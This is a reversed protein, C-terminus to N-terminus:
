KKFLTFLSRFFGKYTKEGGVGPMTSLNQPHNVTRGFKIGLGMYFSGANYGTGVAGDSQSIGRALSISKGINDSGLFFEFNPTKYMGQVGIMIFNNLNYVPTLSASFKDINFTNVFAFDGGQYFLNKSIIISPKYFGFTRSILFDARANTPTFFAEQKDANYAIDTIENEIQKNSKSSLNYISQITNLKATHSSKSWRIFGLDKINGMIFYGSKSAYSTGITLSLGPNKFTPILTKRELEDAKIFSGRYTGNLGIDLRDNPLDTYFYSDNIKLSNYAIGSLLSLKVGLALRKDWNERVSISFQHYSQQYAKDNFINNYPTQESFRKYSDFIALSENTYEAYGDSRLQWAFGVEQNYKYSSFIRFNLIHINTNVFAKNLSGTGIPLNETNLVGTNTLTRIVSQADGKNASNISFNPLFLNSAFKSSSDLTFAKIAPNELADFLSRTNYLAYHQAKTSCTILTFGLFLFYIKKMM